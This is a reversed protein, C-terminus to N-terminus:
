RENRGAWRMREIASVVAAKLSIDRRRICASEDSERGLIEEREDFGARMLRTSFTGRSDHLTKGAAVTAEIQAREIAIAFGHPTVPKGSRNRSRNDTENEASQSRRSIRDARM